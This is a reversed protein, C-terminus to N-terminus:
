VLSNWYAPSPSPVFYFTLCVQAFVLAAFLHRHEVRRFVSPWTILAASFNIAAVLQITTDEYAPLGQDQRRVVCAAAIALSFLLQSWLAMGQRHLLWGASRAPRHAGIGFLDPNGEGLLINCIVPCEGVCGSGVTGGRTLSGVECRRCHIYLLANKIAEDPAM